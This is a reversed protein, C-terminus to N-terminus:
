YAGNLGWWEGDIQQGRGFVGTSGGRYGLLWGPSGGQYKANTITLLDNGEDGDYSGVGLLTQM